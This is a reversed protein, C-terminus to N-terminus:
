NVHKIATTGVEPDSDALLQRALARPRAGAFIDLREAIALRVEQDEDSAMEEAIAFAQEIDLRDSIALNRIQKSVARRVEVSPNNARQVLADISDDTGALALAGAAADRVEPIEDDLFGILSIIVPQGMRALLSQVARETELGGSMARRVQDMVQRRDSGIQIGTIPPPRQQKERVTALLPAVSRPDALEVLCHNAASWDKLSDTPTTYDDLYQPLRDRDCPARRSTVTPALLLALNYSRLQKAERYDLHLRSYSWIQSGVLLFIIGVAAAGLSRLFLRRRHERARPTPKRLQRRPSPAPTSPREIKGRAIEELRSRVGDPRIWGLGRHQLDSLLRRVDDDTWRPLGGAEPTHQALFVELHPLAARDWEVIPCPEPEWELYWVRVAGDEGSSILRRGDRTFSLASVPGTHGEFLRLRRRDRLRWLSVAGGSEAVAFFRGDPSLTVCGPSGGELEVSRLCRGSPLDWLRVGDDGSSLLYRGDTSWALHGVAATHGELGGTSQGTELDWLLLIGDDGGTAATRGDPGLACAHIRGLHGELHHRCAGSDADWVRGSGDVDVSLLWRGRPEGSLDQILAGHGVCERLLAGSDLDWIRVRNDLDATAVLQQDGVFCAAQPISPLQIEGIAEGRRWNWAVLRQDRGGSVVREALPALALVTVADDHGQLLEEEWADALGARPYLADVEALIALSEPAREYGPIARAQGLVLRATEFEGAEVLHQSRDLLDRYRQAREEAELSSVLHAVAWAPRYEPAETMAFQSVASGHAVTVVGWDGSAAGAVIPAGINSSALTRGSPLEWQRLTGDAAGTVARACNRTLAAFSVAGRHGELVAVPSEHGLDWVKCAGDSGGSLAFRGDHSIAVATVGDAHASRQGIIHVGSLSIIVLRGDAGGSVAVAADGSLATCTAFGTHASTDGSRRGTSLDWTVVAGTSSAGIALQGDRSVSLANLYGTHAQLNRSAGTATNWAIIADSDQASLVLESNPVVATCRIRGGQGRLTRLEGNDPNLMAVAGTETGFVATTGGPDVSVSSIRGLPVETQRVLQCGPLLRAVARELSNPADSLRQRAEAWLFESTKQEGIRHLALARCSLTAPDRHKEAEVASLLTAARRWLEQDDSQNAVACLAFCLDRVAEPANDSVQAAQQLRELAEDYCGLVLLARGALLESRWDRSDSRRLEAIRNIVEQDAAGRIQWEMFALNFGAQLHQPDSALADRWAREARHEQGLSAFSVGRNNLSDARLASATAAPRPYSRGAVREFIGRLAQELEAFSSPRQKPEKALCALMIDALEDDLGAVFSRPDGPPQSCHM